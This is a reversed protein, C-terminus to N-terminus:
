SSLGGQSLEDLFVDIIPWSAFLSVECPAIARPALSEGDSAPVSSKQLAVLPSSSFLQIGRVGSGYPQNERASAVAPETQGCRVGGATRIVNDFGENGM